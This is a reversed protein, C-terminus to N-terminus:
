HGAKGGRQYTLAAVPSAGTLMGTIIRRPTGSATVHALDRPPTTTTSQALAWNGVQGLKGNSMAEGQGATWGAPGAFQM